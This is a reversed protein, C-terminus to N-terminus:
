SCRGGTMRRRERTRRDLCSKCRYDSIIARYSPADSKCGCNPCRREKKSFIFILEVRTCKEIPCRVVIIERDDEEAENMSIGKSRRLSVPRRHAVQEMEQAVHVPCRV